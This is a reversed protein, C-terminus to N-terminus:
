AIEAGAEPRFGPDSFNHGERRLGASDIDELLVICRKSLHNFHTALHAESLGVESLSV